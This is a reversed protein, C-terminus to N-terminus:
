DKKLILFFNINKIEEFTIGIIYGIGVKEIGNESLDNNYKEIAMELIYIMLPSIQNDNKIKKYLNFDFIDIKQNNNIRGKFEKVKECLIFDETENIIQNKKETDENENNNNNINIEINMRELDEM